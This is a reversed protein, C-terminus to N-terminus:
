KNPKAAASPRVNGWPDASKQKKEPIREIAAKYEQEVEKAKERKLVTQSDTIDGYGGGGVRSQALASQSVLALLASAGLVRVTVRVTKAICTM